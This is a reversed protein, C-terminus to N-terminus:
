NSRVTSKQMIKKRADDLREETTRTLEVVKRQTIPVEGISQKVKIHNDVMEMYIRTTDNLSRTIVARESPEMTHKEIERMEEIREKLMTITNIEDRVADIAKDVEEFSTKFLTLPTFNNRFRTLANKGIPKGADRCYQHIAKDTLKEARLMEIIDNRLPHKWVASNHAIKKEDIEM